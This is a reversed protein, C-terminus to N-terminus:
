SIRIGMQKLEINKVYFFHKEFKWFASNFLFEERDDASSFPLLLLAFIDFYNLYFKINKSFM